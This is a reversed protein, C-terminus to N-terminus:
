RGQPCPNTIIIGAHIKRHCNSCVPICKKLENKLKKISGYITLISVNFEKEKPNLHHFDLCCPENEECFSCKLNEKYNKFFLKIKENTKKNREYHSLKNKYYYKRRYERLKEINEKKWKETAM